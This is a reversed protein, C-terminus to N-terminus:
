VTSSSQRVDLFLLFPREMTKTFGERCHAKKAELFKELSKVSRDRVKKDNSALRKLFSTEVLSDGDGSSSKKKAM